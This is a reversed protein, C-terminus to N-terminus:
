HVWQYFDRRTTGDYGGAIFLAEHTTCAGQGRACYPLPVADRWGHNDTDYILMTDAYDQLWTRVGGVVYVLNGVVEIEAYCRPDPINIYELITGDTVFGIPSPQLWWSYYDMNDTGGLSYFFPGVAGGFDGLARKPWGQMRLAESPIWVDLDPDYIDIRDVLTHGPNTLGGFIWVQGNIVASGADERPVPMPTRPWWTDTGPDYVWVDDYKAPVRHDYGGFCFLQDNVARLCVSQVARPLPAIPDWRYGDFVMSSATENGDCIGAVAYIKGACAELGFQEKGEPMDPLRLWPGSSLLSEEDVNGWNARAGSTLCSLCVVLASWAVTRMSGAGGYLRGPLATVICNSWRM